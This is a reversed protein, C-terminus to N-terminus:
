RGSVQAARSLSGQRCVAAYARLLDLDIAAPIM